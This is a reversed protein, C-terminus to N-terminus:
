HCDWSKAKLTSITKERNRGPVAFTTNSQNNVIRIPAFYDLDTQFFAVTITLIHFCGRPKGTHSASNSNGWTQPDSLDNSLKREKVANADAPKAPAADQWCQV